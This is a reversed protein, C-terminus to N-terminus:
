QGWRCVYRLDEAYRRSFRLALADESFRPPLSENGAALETLDNGIRALAATPVSPDDALRQAEELLKGARRREAAQRLMDVYHQISPQEPVGDLLSSVYGAGGVSELEKHRELEEVLTLIDIPRGTVVLDSMRAFIRRHSDLSFDAVRLEAAQQYSRSDVLIAGLVSRETRSM